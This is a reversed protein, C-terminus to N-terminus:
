AHTRAAAALRGTADARQADARSLEVALLQAELPAADGERVRAGTLRYSERLADLVRDLLATREREYVMSLYGTEIEYAIQTTKAELEAQVLAVSLDAVRM